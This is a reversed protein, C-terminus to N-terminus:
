AVLKMFGITSDFSMTGSIKSGAIDELCGQISYCLLKKGIKWIRLHFRLTQPLGCRTMCGLTHGVITM